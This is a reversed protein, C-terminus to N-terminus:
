QANRGGHMGGNLVTLDHRRFVGAIEEIQEPTPSPTSPLRRARGFRAYKDMAPRHHPLLTITRITQLRAIHGATAAINESDDNIGPIIPMRIVTPIGERDLFALNELIMENSQGTYHRHRGPDILKLDYLFLDTRRAIREFPGPPAHGTTDVARHIEEAGCRELLEALFTGQALPEGGSFTVGGGSEDYFVTDRRIQEIVQDVGVREGVIQRADAPCVTTCPTPLVDAATPTGAGAPTGAAAPADAAAARAPPSEPCGADGRCAAGGRCRDPDTRPRDAEWVVAQAPCVAVCAGCRVCRDTRYLLEPRDSQSEPNHCWWCALPCGKLFVTTRIGPGDHISFRKIDFILGAGM